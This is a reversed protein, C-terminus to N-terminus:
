IVALPVMLVVGVAIGSALEVRGAAPVLIM